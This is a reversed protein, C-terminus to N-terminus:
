KADDRTLIPVGLSQAQAGILFDPLVNAKVGGAARYLRFARGALWLAHDTMPMRSLALNSCFVACSEASDFAPTLEAFIIDVIAVAGAMRCDTLCSFSAAYHLSDDILIDFLINTDILTL